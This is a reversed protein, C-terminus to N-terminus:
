DALQRAEAYSSLHECSLAWFGGTERWRIDTEPDVASFVHPVDARALVIDGQALGTEEAVRIWGGHLQFAPGGSRYDEGPRSLMLISTVKNPLYPHEHPAIHGGGRPLHMAMIRLGDSAVRFDTGAVANNVRQLDRACRQLPGALTDALETPAGFGFVHMRHDIHAPQSGDDIRHFNLDGIQASTGTEFEAARDAWDLLADRLGSCMDPAVAGKLLVVNGSDISARISQAARDLDGPGAITEVCVRGSPAGEGEDQSQVPGCPRTSQTPAPQVSEAIM